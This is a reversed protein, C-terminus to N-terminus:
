SNVASNNSARPRCPYGVEWVGHQIAILCILGRETANM